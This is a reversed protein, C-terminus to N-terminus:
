GFVRFGELAGNPLEEVRVSLDVDDAQANMADEFGKGLLSSFLEDIQEEHWSGKVHVPAMFNQLKEHVDYRLKRGKSAKTDVKKKAKKQKQIVMWDNAGSADRADIVDRLLQQYFDTDDFIEVDVEPEDRAEVGTTSGERAM